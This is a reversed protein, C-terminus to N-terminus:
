FSVNALKKGVLFRYSRISLSNTAAFISRCTQIKVKKGLTTELGYRSQSDIAFSTWTLQLFMLLIILNLGSFIFKLFYMKVM